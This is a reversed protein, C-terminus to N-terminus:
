VNANEFTLSEVLVQRDEPYAIGIHVVKTLRQLFDSFIERPGQM